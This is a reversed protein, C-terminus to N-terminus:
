ATPRIVRRAGTPTSSRATTNSCPSGGENTVLIEPDGDGDLDAVQPFGDAVGAADYYVTGDHHYAAHGLVVALDGDDDLDAATVASGWGAGFAPPAQWLRQGPHDWVQTGGLIEVDGDNDLDALAIAAYIAEELPWGSEGMWKLTGDHEFAVPRNSIDGLYFQGAVIEAIGDGDIDGLAPTVTPDIVTEIRFHVAGTAGDVVYIHGTPTQAFFDATATIVLDPTDCLDIKGDGNDDTLNAV